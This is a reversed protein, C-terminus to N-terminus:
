NKGVAGRLCKGRAMEMDKRSGVGVECARQWPCWRWCVQSPSPHGKAETSAKSRFYFVAVLSCFVCTVFILGTDVGLFVDFM